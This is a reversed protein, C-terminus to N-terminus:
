EDQTSLTSVYLRLYLLKARTAKSHAHAGLSPEIWRGDALEIIATIM